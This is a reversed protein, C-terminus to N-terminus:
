VYWEKIDKSDRKKPKQPVLGPVPGKDNGNRLSGNLPATSGNIPHHRSGNTTANNGLLAANPGPGYGISKDHDMKYTRDGNSKLWLLLLIVLIVAILAGAVIAIIMATRNEADSTVTGPKRGRNSIPPSTASYNPPDHESESGSELRPNDTNINNHGHEHDYDPGHEIENELEPTSPNLPHTTEPNPQTTDVHQQTTSSWVTSTSSSTGAPTTRSPTSDIPTTTGFSSSRDGTTGYTGYSETEKVTTTTGDTQRTTESVTSSTHSTTATCFYFFM